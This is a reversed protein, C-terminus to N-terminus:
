GSTCRIPSPNADSSAMFTLKHARMAKNYAKGALVREVTGQGLLGSEVWVEVLGSSNM